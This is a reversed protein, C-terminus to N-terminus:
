DKKSVVEESRKNGNVNMIWMQKVEGATLSIFTYWDILDEKRNLPTNMQLVSSLFAPM